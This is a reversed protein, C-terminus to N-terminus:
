KVTVAIDPSVIQWWSNGPKLPLDKGQADVFRFPSRRETRVWQGEYVRGDRFIRVPGAGWLQLQVSANSCPGQTLQAGQEPILTQVANVTLVVVTAASLQAGDVKDIHPKGGITRLWRGSGADYSWGVHLQKYAKPYPIALSGAAAGGAPAGDSFVWAATPDPAINWGRQTGVKWLTATNAFLNFPVRIEPDRFFAAGNRAQELVQPGIDSKYLAQRVPEVAGSFGIIADFIVPLEVDILRASRLSGIRAADQSQYIATMRTLCGEKPHEVVVDAKSLGSQPVVALDNDVKLALPRRELVTPDAPRLGTFISVGPQRVPMAEPSPTTATPEVTPTASPEPTATPPEPTDTPALTPLAVTPPIPSATPHATKTPTPTAAPPPACAAVVAVVLILGLARRFVHLAYFRIM